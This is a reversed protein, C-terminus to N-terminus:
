DPCPVDEKDLLELAAQVLATALAAPTSDPLRVGDRWGVLGQAKPWVAVCWYGDDPSYRDWELGLAILANLAADLSGCYDPVASKEVRKGCANEGGDDVLGCRLADWWYRVYPTPGHRPCVWADETAQGLRDALARNLRDTESM